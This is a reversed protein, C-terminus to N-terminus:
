CSTGPAFNLTLIYFQARCFIALPVPEWRRRLRCVIDISCSTTSRSQRGRPLCLPRFDMTLLVEPRKHSARSVLSSSAVEATVPCRLAKNPLYKVSSGHWVKGLGKGYIVLFLGLFRPMFEGCNQYRRSVSVYRQVISLSRWGCASMLNYVPEGAALKYTAHAHRLTHPSFRTVGALGCARWLMHMFVDRRWEHGAYTFVNGTVPLPFPFAPRPAHREYSGKCGRWFRICDAHIDDAQLEIAETIRCGTACLFWYLRRADEHPLAAMVRQLEDPQPVTITKEIVRVGRFYGALGCRAIIGRGACWSLAAALICYEKKVTGLGVGAATRVAVYEDFAARDITDAPRDAFHALLPKMAFEIRERYSASHRRLSDCHARWRAVAETIPLAAAQQSAQAAIQRVGTDGGKDIHAQAETLSKFRRRIRAGNVVDDFQWVIGRAGAIKTLTM